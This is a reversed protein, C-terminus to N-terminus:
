NMISILDKKSFYSHLSILCDKENGSQAFKVLQSINPDTINNSKIMQMVVEEPNRGKMMQAIQMLDNM